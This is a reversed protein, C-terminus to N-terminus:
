LFFASGDFVHRTDEILPLPNNPSLPPFAAGALSDGVSFSSPTSRRFFPYGQVPLLPGHRFTDEEGASTQPFFTGTPSLFSFLLRVEELFSPVGLLFLSFASSRSTPPSPPSTYHHTPVTKSPYAFEKSYPKHFSLVLPFLIRAHDGGTRPPPRGYSHLPFNLYSLTPRSGFREQIM